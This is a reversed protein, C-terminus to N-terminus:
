QANRYDRIEARHDQMFKAHATGGKERSAKYRSEFDATLEEAAAGATLTADAGADALLDVTKAAAETEIDEAKTEEVKKASAELATIKEDREAITAENATITENATALSATATALDEVATGASEISTNAAELDAGLDTVKEELAAITAKYEKSTKFM